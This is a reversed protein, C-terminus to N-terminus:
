NKDKDKDKDKDKTSSFQKKYNINASIEDGSIAEFSINPSLKYEINWGAQVSSDSDISTGYGVNLRDNIKAAIDVRTSNGNNASKSTFAVDKLGLQEGIKQVLKNASEVGLSIAASTLANGEQQSLSDLKRGTILLSLVNEDAMTPESFLTLRPNHITGDAIIGVKIDDVIRVARFQISPNAATGLFLLQGQEITLTQKYAEFKGEKLDLRGNLTLPQGTILSSSLNGQIESSLGFGSIKVNDGASLTLSINYDLAPDKEALNKEDVIVQDESVSIAPKPLSAIKIDAQDVILNGDVTLHKDQYNAKLMPSVILKNDNNNVLTVQQGEITLNAKIPMSLKAQGAITLSGQPNQLEGLLIVRDQQSSLKVKSNRIDLGYEDIVLHEIGLSGEGTFIPERWTGALTFNQVLNGEIKDIRKQWQKLWEFQQLNVSLDGSLRASDILPWDSNFQATIEDEGSLQINLGTSIKDKQWKGQLKLLAVTLLHKSLQTDAPSSEDPVSLTIDTQALDFDVTFDPTISLLMQGTPMSIEAPWEPLQLQTNITQWQTTIAITNQQQQSLITLEQGHIQVDSSQWKFSPITVNASIGALQQGKGSLALQGTVRGQVEQPYKSPQALLTSQWHKVQQFIPSMSWQEFTLNATWQEVQKDANICLKGSGSLCLNKIRQNEASLQLQETTLVLAQQQNEAKFDLNNIQWIAKSIDSSISFPKTDQQLLQGDFSLKVATNEALTASILMKHDAPLGSIKLSPQELSFENINLADAKVDGQWGESFDLAWHIKKGDFKALALKDIKGQSSIFWQSQQQELQWSANVNALEFVNNLALSRGNLQGKLSFNESTPNDVNFEGQITATLNGLTLKNSKVTAIGQKIALDLSALVPWSQKIAPTSQDIAEPLAQRLTTAIQAANLENKLLLSVASSARWDVVNALETNITLQIDKFEQWRAQIQLKASLKPWNLEFNAKTKELDIAQSALEVQQKDAILIGRKLFLGQNYFWDSTVLMQNPSQLQLTLQSSDSINGKSKVNGSIKAGQVEVALQHPWKKRMDLYGSVAIKHEDFTLKLAGVSAKSRAFALKKLVLDSVNYETSASATNASHARQSPISTAPDSNKAPTIKATMAQYSISAMTVQKVKLAIPLTVTALKPLAEPSSATKEDNVSSVALTSLAISDCSLLRDILHLWQCDVSLETMQVKTGEQQWELEALKIRTNLTGSIKGLRLEQPQLQAIRAALWQLGSETTYLWSLMLLTIVMLGTTILSFWKLLAKKKFYSM